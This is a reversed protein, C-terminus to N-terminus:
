WRIFLDSKRESPVSATQRMQEFGLLLITLVMRGAVRVGFLLMPEEKLRSTCQPHTPGFVGHKATAERMPGGNRDATEYNVVKFGVGVGPGNIVAEIWVVSNNAFHKDADRMFRLTREDECGTNVFTSLIDHTEGYLELCRRMMVVSSRGGSVSIALRPRIPETTAIRSRLVECAAQIKLNELNSPASMM